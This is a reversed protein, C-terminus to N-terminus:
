LGPGAVIKKVLSNEKGILHIVLLGRATVPIKNLGPILSKSCIRRGQLDYLIAAKYDTNEIYICQDRYLFRIESEPLSSTGVPSSTAYTMANDILWGYNNSAGPLGADTLRFRLLIPNNLGNNLVLQTIDFAEHRWWTSDPIAYPLTPKWASGHTACGFTGNYTGTGLYCASPVPRWLVTDPPVTHYQLQAIDLFDVKCIHDFEIYYYNANTDPYVPIFDLLATAAPMVMTHVYHNGPLGPYAISSQLTWPSNLSLSDVGSPPECNEHMLPVYQANLKQCLLAVTLIFIMKKM